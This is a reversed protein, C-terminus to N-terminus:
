HHAQNESLLYKREEDLYERWRRMLAEEGPQDGPQLPMYRVFRAVAPPYDFEAYLQEVVGLPDTFQARGRYVAALELYLWKRAPGRPSHVREATDVMSLIDPVCDLEDRLLVSLKDLVSDKTGRRVAETAIDVVADAKLFGRAMGYRLDEATLPVSERGLFEATLEIAIM